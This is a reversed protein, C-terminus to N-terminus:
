EERVRTAARPRMDGQMPAREWQLVKGEVMARLWLFGGRRLGGLRHIHTMNDQQALQLM